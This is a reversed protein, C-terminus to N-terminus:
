SRVFAELEEYMDGDAARLARIYTRRVEGADNLNARGWTFPEAGRTQLLLNTMDRAHRGNGNPFPHIQVLRHHFRCAAKDLPVPVAGAVWLKAGETLSAVAETIQWFEVGINPNTTRYIGAWSWVDCFMDHHLDRVASHDLLVDLTLRKRRWKRRADQINDAEAENLDARTTVWSTILGERQEDTLPTAGEPDENWGETMM